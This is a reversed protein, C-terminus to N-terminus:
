SFKKILKELEEVCKPKEKDKSEGPNVIGLEILFEDVKEDNNEKEETEEILPTYKMHEEDGFLVALTNPTLLNEKNKREWFWEDYKELDVELFWCNNEKKLKAVRFPIWFKEIYDRNIGEVVRKLLVARETVKEVYVEFIDIDSEDKKPDYYSHIHQCNLGIKTKRM